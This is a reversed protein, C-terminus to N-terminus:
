VDMLYGMGLGHVVGRRVAALDEGNAQPTEWKRRGVKFGDLRWRGLNM